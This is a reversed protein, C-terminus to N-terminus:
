ALRQIKVKKAWEVLAPILKQAQQRTVDDTLNGNEDFKDTCNPVLCEPQLLCSSNTFVFRQRLGIEGVAQM